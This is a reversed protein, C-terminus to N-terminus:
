KLINYQYQRAKVIDEPLDLDVDDLKIVDEAGSELAIEILADEEIDKDTIIQGRRSFLYSVSGDTGLKGGCKAFVYRVESVTRNRNDSIVEVLFAIGCPGYGEYILEEVNGAGGLGAGRDIARQITDKTM